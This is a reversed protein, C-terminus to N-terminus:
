THDKGTFFVCVGGRFMYNVRQLVQYFVFYFALKFHWAVSEKGVHGVGLGM